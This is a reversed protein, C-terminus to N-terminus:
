DNKEGHIFDLLTESDFSDRWITYDEDWIIARRNAEIWDSIRKREAMVGKQYKREFTRQLRAAWDPKSM